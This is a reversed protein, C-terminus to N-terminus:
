EIVLPVSAPTSRLGRRMQDFASKQSWGSGRASGEEWGPFKLPEEAFGRAFYPTLQRRRLFRRARSFPCYEAGPFGNLLCKTKKTM